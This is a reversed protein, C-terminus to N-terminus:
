RETASPFRCGLSLSMAPNARTTELILDSASKTLLWQLPRLAGWIFMGKSETGSM